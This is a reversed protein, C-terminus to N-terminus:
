HVSKNHKETRTEGTFKTGPQRSLKEGLAVFAVKKPTSSNQSSSASSELVMSCLKTFGVQINAGMYEMREPLASKLLM